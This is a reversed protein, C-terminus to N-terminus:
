RVPAASGSTGERTFEFRVVEVRQGPTDAPPFTWKKAAAVALREFYRSPGPNQVLAALVGGDKDVIVRVSVKIHGRITQRARRPVDPIDKHLAAPVAVAAAARAQAAKAEPAAVPVSAAAAPLPAAASTQVVPPTATRHTGLLRIGLGVLVLMVIAGLIPAVHSRPRAPVPAPPEEWVAEYTTTESPAAPAPAVLAPATGQRRLWAEIESVKPRDYSRHSLCSAILERFAPSIERPLEVAARGEDLGAPPSRSLAEFLSVGLGWIDGATTYSGDRVEPPDYVSLAHRSAGPEGIRHVTDSALKLQDGVALFNAPKLQGQVLQRGHLYNLASLIPPLMERAEDETLARGKLIQELSQDACEMVVYLYAQRDLECQGSGLIHILHPHDLSAAVQWEPLQAEALIANSPVLKVAVAASERGEHEALFVGSQESGGILRGLRYTGDIVRGLWGAWFDRAVDRSEVSM